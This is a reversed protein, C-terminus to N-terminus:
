GCSLDDCGQAASVSALAWIVAVTAAVALISLGLKRDNREADARLLPQPGTLEVGGLKVITQGPFSVGLEIISSNHFRVPAFPSATGDWWIPGAALTLTSQGQQRTGGSLPIRLRLMAAAGAATATGYRPYSDPFAGNAYSSSVGTLSFLLAIAVCLM